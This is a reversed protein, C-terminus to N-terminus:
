PTPTPPTPQGVAQLKALADALKTSSAQVSDRAATAETALADLQAQTVPSGAALQQPLQAVLGAVNQVGTAVGTVEDALGTALTTLADLADKLDQETMLVQKLLARLHALRAFNSLTMLLVGIVLLGVVDLRFALSM